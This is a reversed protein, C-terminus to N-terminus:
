SRPKPPLTTAATTTTGTTTTTVGVVTSPSSAPSNNQSAKLRAFYARLPPDFIWIGTAVGLVGAGFIEIPRLRGVRSSM